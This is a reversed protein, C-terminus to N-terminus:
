PQEWRGITVNQTATGQNAIVTGGTTATNHQTNRVGPPNEADRQPASRDLKEILGRIDARVTQSRIQWYHSRSLLGIDAPLHERDPLATGDLLVPVVPIRRQFATRLEVRVWDNPNDIRRLGDAGRADLWHPGIVAIMTECERLAGRIREPYVTGLEMSDHDRFVQRGGFHAALEEALRSTLHISDDARYSVFIAAM